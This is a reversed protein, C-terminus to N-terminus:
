CYCCRRLIPAVCSDLGEQVLETQWGVNVYMCMCSCADLSHARPSLCVSLLIICTFALQSPLNTRMITIREYKTWQYILFLIGSMQAQLCMPVTRRECNYTGSNMDNVLGSSVSEHSQKLANGQMGRTNSEQALILEEIGAASLRQKLV